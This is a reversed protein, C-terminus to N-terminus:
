IAGKRDPSSISIHLHDATGVHRLTNFGMIKFYMTILTNRLGGHGRTRIDVAHAYGSSQTYHLSHNKTRLGMRRYDEPLRSADTLLLSKDVFILTSIGIRLVPHLSTFEERVEPYKANTASLYFLAPLCYVTVLSLAIWYTRRMSRFNGASGQLLRQLYALYLFILLASALIGGFISGWAGFAQTDHLYVATRILTIFPLVLLGIVKLFQLLMRQM